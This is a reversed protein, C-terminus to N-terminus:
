LVVPSVAVVLLRGETGVFLSLEEFSSVVGLSLVDPGLKSRPIRKPRYNPHIM